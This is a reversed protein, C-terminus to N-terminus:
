LSGSELEDDTKYGLTAESHSYNCKNQPKQMQVNTSTNNFQRSGDEQIVYSYYEYGDTLENEKIKIVKAGKQIFDPPGFNGYGTKWGYNFEQDGLIGRFDNFHDHGFWHSKINDMKVVSKYFESNETFQDSCTCAEYYNGFAKGNNIVDLIERIPIHYFAMDKTKGYLRKFEKSLSEYWSIQDDEICGWSEKEGNCGIDNTDFFWFNMLVKSPDKRSYLHKVFNTEGTLGKPGKETLSFKHKMDLEIVESRTLDSQSDHNGFVTIFYQENDYFPQGYKKWLNETWGNKGNWAYGSVIDGTIIVIDPKIENITNNMVILTQSDQFESDGFHLDTMQLITFEFNDNVVFYSQKDSFLM